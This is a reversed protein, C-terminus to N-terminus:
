QEDDDEREAMPAAARLDVIISDVSRILKSGGLRRTPMLAGNSFHQATAADFGVPLPHRVGFRRSIQQASYPQGQGVIALQFRRGSESDAGFHDVLDGVWCNAAVISPLDSRMVLLARDSNRLVQMAFSETGLRGLDFIVDTGQGDLAAFMDLLSGWMPTLSRAQQPSRPGQLFDANTGELHILSTPLVNHMQGNRSASAM